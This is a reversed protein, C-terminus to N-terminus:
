ERLKGPPIFVAARIVVHVQVKDIVEPEGWSYDAVHEGRAKIKSTLDTGM